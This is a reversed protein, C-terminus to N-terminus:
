AYGMLKSRTKATTQEHLISSAFITIKIPKVLSMLAEKNLM